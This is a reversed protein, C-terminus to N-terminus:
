PERGEDCLLLNLPRGGAVELPFGFGFFPVQWPVPLWCPLQLGFPSQMSDLHAYYSRSALAHPHVKGTSAERWKRLSGQTM